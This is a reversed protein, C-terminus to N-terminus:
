IPIDPTIGPRVQERIHSRIVEEDVPSLYLFKMGMGPEKDPNEDFRYVYLVVAYTRVIRDDLLFTVTHYSGVPRPEVTKMFLGEDSLMTVFETGSLSKEIAANLFTSIRINQRPTPELARQVVRYLDASQVPKNLCGGKIAMRCRDETTQDTFRTQLIFPISATEPDQALREALDFGNMLPLILETVVLAPKAFGIFELAEEGTRVTTSNYGFNQLLMATYSADRQSNDVVLIFRKKHGTLKLTSMDQQEM